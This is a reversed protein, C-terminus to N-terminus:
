GIMWYGTVWRWNGWDTQEWHGPVWVADDDPPVIWAGQVWQWSGDWDWWGPVWVANEDTQEIIEEDLPDPIDIIESVELPDTGYKWYGDVWYWKNLDDDYGWHGPQWVANEFPVAEWAGDVWVWEGDQYDWWGPVWVLDDDSETAAIEEDQLDPIPVPNDLYITETEVVDNTKPACASLFGIGWIVGFIAALIAAQRFWSTNKMRM